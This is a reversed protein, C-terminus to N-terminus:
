AGDRYACCAPRCPTGAGTLMGVLGELMRPCAGTLLTLGHAGHLLVWAAALLLAGVVAALGTLAPNRHLLIDSALQSTSAAGAAPTEPVGAFSVGSRKAAAGGLVPTEMSGAFANLDLQQQADSIASRRPPPPALSPAEAPSSRPLGLRRGGCRQEHCAQAEAPGVQAGRHRATHRRCVADQLRAQAATCSCVPPPCCSHTCCFASFPAVPCCWSSSCMPPVSGGSGDSSDGAM